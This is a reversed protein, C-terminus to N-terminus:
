IGHATSKHLLLGLHGSGATDIASWMLTEEHGSAMPVDAQRM